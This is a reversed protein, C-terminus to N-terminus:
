GGAHQREPLFFSGALAYSEPTGIDLFRGPSPFGYVRRERVWTPLLDRELSLPLAPSVAEILLRDLLYIGANIWGELRAARKEEFRLVRGDTARQVRGFRSTDPVRALVLSADACREQHFCWFADLDLDCYSDGNLLLITRSSLMSLARRVAGATGLPTTEVSYTLRVGAYETGLAQRVEDARYGALLVVECMGARALQDLLYKLYPRGGVPALVKPHNPLAPRLRSGLGGALIAATVHELTEVL